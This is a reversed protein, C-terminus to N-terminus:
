TILFTVQQKFNISVPSETVSVPQLFTPCQQWLGPEPSGM